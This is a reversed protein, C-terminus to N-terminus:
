SATLVEVETRSEHLLVQVCVGVLGLKRDSDGM